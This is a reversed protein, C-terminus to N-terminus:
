ALDPRARVEERLIRLWLDFLEIPANVGQEQMSDIVENRLKTAKEDLLLEKNIKVLGAYQGFLLRFGQRFFVEQEQASMSLIPQSMRM